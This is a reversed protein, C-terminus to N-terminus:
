GLQEDLMPATQWTITVTASASDSNEAVSSAVEDDPTSSDAISASADTIGSLLFGALIRLLAVLAVPRKM